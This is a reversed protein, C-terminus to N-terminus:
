EGDGPADDREEDGGPAVEQGIEEGAEEELEEEAEKEAEEGAAEESGGSEESSASPAEGQEEEPRVLTLSFTVEGYLVYETPFIRQVPSTREFGFAGEDAAPEEEQHDGPARAEEGGPADELAPPELDADNGEDPAVHHNRWDPFPPYYELVLDNNRPQGEFERIWHELSEVKQPEAEEGGAEPEEGEFGAGVEAHGLGDVFVSGGGRAIVTVEGPEGEAAIELTRVIEFPEGRYPRLRIQVDVSGGLPVEKAVPRAEIIEATLRREQVRAHLEVQTPGLEVFPNSYLTQFAIALEGLSVAAVDSASYFMNERQLEAGAGEAAIRWTVWSTGAGIRDLARDFAELAATLLLLDGLAPDDVVEVAFSRDRARDLDTIQVNLKVTSAAEGLRGAIGAARDQGVRGIVGLPSGIKFPIATSPVTHVIYAGSAVYDVGGRHLFPHGFAVFRGQEDIATVTGIATVDVDGRVLQVGIASGPVLNPPEKSRGSVRGAPIAQVPYGAFAEQLQKFARRGLGSIMLPTQVPTAIAVSGDPPSPLEPAAAGYPLVAVYAPVTARAEAAAEAEGAGPEGGMSELLPLMDEAPTVLGLRHDTMSFGYGIAGVLRGGLYVPSGSMGAAIGGARDIVEGSVRILILDGGTPSAGELVGLFEVTFPEVKTGSIVTLGTGQIGWPLSRVPIYEIGGVAPASASGRGATLALLLLIALMRTAMM